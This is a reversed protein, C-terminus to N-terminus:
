THVHHMAHHCPMQDPPRGPRRGPRRRSVVPSVALLSHTHPPSVFSRARATSFPRPMIVRVLSATPFWRPLGLQLSRKPQCFRLSQHSARASYCLRMRVRELRALGRNSEGFLGRHHNAISSLKSNQALPETQPSEPRQLGPSAQRKLALSTM